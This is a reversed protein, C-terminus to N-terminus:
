LKVSLGCVSCYKNDANNETGCRSCVISSRNVSLPMSTNDPEASTNDGQNESYSNDGPFSVKEFEQSSVPSPASEPSANQPSYYYSGYYDAARSDANMFLNTGATSFSKQAASVAATYQKALLAGSLVATVSSFYFAAFMIKAIPMSDVIVYRLSTNFTSDSEFLGNKFGSIFYYTTIGLLVFSYIVSIVMFVKGFRAELKKCQITAIVSSCFVIGAGAWLAGFLAPLGLLLISSMIKGTDPNLTMLQDTVPSVISGFISFTSSVATIILFIRIINFPLATLEYEKSRIVVWLIVFAILPFFLVLSYLIQLVGEGAGMFTNMEEEAQTSLVSSISKINLFCAAGFIMSVLLVTMAIVAAGVPKSSLSKKIFRPNDAFPNMQPMFMFTNNM